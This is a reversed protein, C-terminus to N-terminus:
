NFSVRKSSILSFRLNGVWQLAGAIVYYYLIYYVGRVPSLHYTPLIHIKEMASVLNQYGALPISCCYIIIIDNCIASYGVKVTLLRLKNAIPPKNINVIINYLM